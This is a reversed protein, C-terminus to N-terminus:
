SITFPIALYKETNFVIIINGSEAPANKKVKVSIGGEKYSASVSRSKEGSFKISAGSNATKYVMDDTVDASSTVFVKPKGTMAMASVTEDEPFYKKGSTTIYGSLTAADITLTQNSDSSTIALPEAKGVEVVDNGITVSLKAKKTNYRSQVVITAKVPKNTEFVKPLATVIFYDYSGSVSIYESGKTVEFTCDRYIYGDGRSEFNLYIKKTEGINMNLKTIKAADESKSETLTIKTPAERVYVEVCCSEDVSVKTADNPDVRCAWVYASGAAVPTVKGKSVKCVSTDSKQRFSTPCTEDKTVIWNIQGSKTTNIAEGAFTEWLTLQKTQTNKQGGGLTKVKGGGLYVSISGTYRPTTNTDDLRSVYSSYCDDFSYIYAKEWDPTASKAADIKFQMETSEGAYEITQSRLYRSSEGYYICLYCKMKGDSNLTNIKESLTGEFTYKGDAGEVATLLCSQSRIGSGKRGAETEYVYPHYFYAYTIPSVEASSDTITLSFKVKSPEEAAFATINFGSLLASVAIWLGIMASLPKLAKIKM